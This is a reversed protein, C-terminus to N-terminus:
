TKLLKKKRAQAAYGAVQMLSMRWYVAIQKNTFGDNHLKAYDSVTKPKQKMNKNTFKFVGMPSIGNQYTELVECQISQNRNNFYKKINEARQKRTLGYGGFVNEIERKSLGRPNLLFTVYCVSDEDREIHNLVQHYLQNVLPGTPPGCFDLWYYQINKIKNAIYVYNKFFDGNIFFGYSGDQKCDFDIHAPTTREYMNPTETRHIEYRVFTTKDKRGKLLNEFPTNISRGGLYHIVIRNATATEKVDKAITKRSQRKVKAEATATTYRLSM